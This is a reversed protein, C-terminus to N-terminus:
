HLGTNTNADMQAKIAAFKQRAETNIAIGFHRCFRLFEALDFAVRVPVGSAARVQQERQEAGELWHAYLRPLLHGDEMVSKIEEYDGASYWCQAVRNGIFPSDSM